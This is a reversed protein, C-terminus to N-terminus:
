SLLQCTQDHEVSVIKSKRSNNFIELFFYSISFLLFERMREGSLLDCEM